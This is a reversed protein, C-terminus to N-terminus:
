NELDNRVSLVLSKLGSQNDSSDQGYSTYQRMNMPHYDETSTHVSVEVQDLSIPTAFNLKPGINGM